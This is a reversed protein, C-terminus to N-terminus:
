SGLSLTAPEFGTEREMKRHVWRGSVGPTKEQPTAQGAADDLEGEAGRGVLAGDVGAVARIQTKVQDGPAPPPLPLLTLKELEARMFEPALHGYRDLTLRVDAHGLIRSVTPLTVGSQLLLSACTHRLDHFRIPRVQAVPWLKDGHVPCRRLGRDPAAEAHECRPATRDRVGAANVRARCVHRYGTVLGARGLARRLVGSFDTEESMMGGDPRPFVLASPSADLAARIFPELEPHIPVTRAKGSKTTQRGWSRAFTVQRASLDVDTKRLGCLEGERAGTFVAAAFIPRWRDALEALVPPV